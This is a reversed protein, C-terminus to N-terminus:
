RRGKGCSGRGPVNKVAKEMQVLLNDKQNTNVKGLVVDQADDYKSCEDLNPLKQGRQDGMMRPSSIGVTERNNVSRGSMMRMLEQRMEEVERLELLESKRTDPSMKDNQDESIEMESAITKSMTNAKASDQLDDSQDSKSGYLLHDALM